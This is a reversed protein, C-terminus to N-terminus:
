TRRISFAPPTLHCPVPEQTLDFSRSHSPIPVRVNQVGGVGSPAITTQVLPSPGISERVTGGAGTQDGSGEVVTSPLLLGLGPHVAARPDPVPLLDRHSLGGSRPCFTSSAFGATVEVHDGAERLLEEM